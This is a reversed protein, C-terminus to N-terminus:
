RMFALGGFLLAVLVVIIVVIIIVIVMNLLAVLIGRGFTTPLMATLMGAQVLLGVPLSVLQAILGASQQNMRGAAAGFGFVFGILLGVGVNVLATVFVILMAKGFDPEPVGSPSDAGGAMANYLAIAARLIVAGILVGILGGVLLGCLMGGLAAPGGMLMDGKAHTRSFYCGAKEGSQFEPFRGEAM